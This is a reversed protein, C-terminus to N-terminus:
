KLLSDKETFKILLIIMPINLMEMLIHVNYINNYHYHYNINIFIQKYYIFLKYMNHKCMNTISICM